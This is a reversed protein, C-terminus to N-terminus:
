YAQCRCRLRALGECGRHGRLRRRRHRSAVQMSGFRFPSAIIPDRGYFALKGGGDAVSMGVDALVDNVAKHRDFDPSTEPHSRKRELTATM